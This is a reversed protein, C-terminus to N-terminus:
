LFNSTRLTTSLKQLGQATEIFNELAGFVENLLNMTRYAGIYALYLEWISFNNIFNLLYDKFMLEQLSNFGCM